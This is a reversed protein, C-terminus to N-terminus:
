HSNIKFEINEENLMDVLSRNITIQKKSTMTVARRLELDFIRINLSGRPSGDGDAAVYDALMSAITDNATSTDLKIIISNILKGRVDELLRINTINFRLDSERFRREFKGTVVVPTGAVGFNHFNIYNNGFLM